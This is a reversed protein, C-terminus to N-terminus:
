RAKKKTACYWETELKLTNVFAENSLTRTKEKVCRMAARKETPTKVKDVLACVNRGEPTGANRKRYM